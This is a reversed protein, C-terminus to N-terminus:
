GMSAHSTREISCAVRDLYLAVPESATPTQATAIRFPQAPDIGTCLLRFKCDGCVRHAIEDGTSISDTWSETTTGTVHGIPMERLPPCLFMAGDPGVVVNRSLVERGRPVIGLTTPWDDEIIPGMQGIDLGLEERLVELRMPLAAWQEHTLGRLPQTTARGIAAVPFVTWVECRFKRILEIVMDFEDINDQHLVTHIGTVRGGLAQLAEIRTLTAQFTGRGRILDHTQPSAGDLSIHIGMQPHRRQVEVVEQLVSNRVIGNTLLTVRDIGSTMAHELLEVVDSRLTAEGGSITLARTGSDGLVTIFHKWDETAVEDSVPSDEEPVACHICKLNCRETVMIQVYSGFPNM